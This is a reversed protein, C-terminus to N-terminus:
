EDAYDTTRRKKIVIRSQRGTARHPDNVDAIAFQNVPIKRRVPGTERHLL